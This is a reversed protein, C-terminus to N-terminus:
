EELITYLGSFSLIILYRKGREIEMGSFTPKPGEYHFHFADGEDPRNVFKFFSDETVTTTDGIYEANFATFARMRPFGM